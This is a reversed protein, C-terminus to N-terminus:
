AGNTRATSVSATRISAIKWPIPFDSVSSTSSAWRSTPKQSFERGPPLECAVAQTQSTMGVSTSAFKLGHNGKNISVDDVLQYQTVNRGQPFSQQEGGIVVLNGASINGIAGTFDQVAFPFTQRALSANAQQFIAGYWFVSGIFQNVINNNFIHTNTLQGEWAPQISTANFAPTLFDTYTPQLGHDNKMRMSWKDNNTRNWDVKTYMLWETSLSGATSRFTNQCPLGGLGYAHGNLTQGDFDGCGGGVV